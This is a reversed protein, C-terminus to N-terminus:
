FTINTGFTWTRTIPYNGIGTEPSYANKYDTFYKLNNGRVYLSLAKLPTKELFKVPLSYTLSVNRLAVFSADRTKLSEGRSGNWDSSGPRPYKNSPNDPTWYDLALQNNRGNFAGIFNNVRTVGQVAELLVSLELGKYSITNTIGGYWDPTPNGLFQRDEANIIGDNNVDEYKVDGPVQNYVAAEAAEETQLEADKVHLTIKSM